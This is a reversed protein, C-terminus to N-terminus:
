QIQTKVWHYLVLEKIHRLSFMQLDFGELVQKSVAVEIGRRYWLLDLVALGRNIHVIFGM